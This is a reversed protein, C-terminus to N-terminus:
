LAIRRISRQIRFLVVGSMATAGIGGLTVPLDGIAIGYGAWLLAEAIAMTWTAPAVSDLDRSLIAERAAPAFQVTYCASLVLGFTALGALVGAVGLLLLLGASTFATERAVPRSISNALRFIWLYLVLSGLSVPVLGVVGASLGYILWGSNIAIGAGIWAGSVGSLSRRQIIRRAQPILMGVGLINALTVM